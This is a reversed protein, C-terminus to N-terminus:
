IITKWMTALAKGEFKSSLGEMFLIPRLIVYIVDTGLANQRPHREINYKTAWTQVPTSSSSSKVGGRDTSSIGIYKINAAIAADVFSKGQKEEIEKGGKKM